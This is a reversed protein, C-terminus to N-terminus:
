LGILWLPPVIAASRWTQVPHSPLLDFLIDPFLEPFHMRRLETGFLGLDALKLLWNLLNLLFAHLLVTLYNTKLAFDLLDLADVLYVAPLHFLILLQEVVLEVATQVHCSIVRSRVQWAVLESSCQQVPADASISVLITKFSHVGWATVGLLVHRDRSTLQLSKLALYLWHRGLDEDEGLLELDWLIAPALVVGLELTHVFLNLSQQILFLSKM